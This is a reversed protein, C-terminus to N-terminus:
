TYALGTDVNQMDCTDDDIAVAGTGTNLERIIRQGSVPWNIFTTGVTTAVLVDRSLTSPNGFRYTGDVIEKDVTNDVMYRITDGDDHAQDFTFYGQVKDGLQYTGTGSTTTMQATAGSVAGPDVGTM